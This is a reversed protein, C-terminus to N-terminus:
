GGDVVFDGVALYPDDVGVAGDLADDEVDVAATEDEALGAVVVGDVVEQGAGGLDGDDRGGVAQGRFVREGCVEVVAEGGGAPQGVVDLGLEAGVPDDDGAVGRATVEGRLCQQAQPVVVGLREAPEDAGHEGGGPGAREGAHLERDVLEDGRTVLDDHPEGVAARLVAREEAQGGGALM